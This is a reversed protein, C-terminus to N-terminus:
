EPQAGASGADVGSRFPQLDNREDRDGVGTDGGGDSYLRSEAVIGTVWVASRTGAIGSLVFATGRPVRGACARQSGFAIAARRRAEAEPMGAALNAEVEREMHFRLEEDVEARKKGTVFFRIRSWWERLM